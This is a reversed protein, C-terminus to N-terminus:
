VNIVEFFLSFQGWIRGVDRNLSFSLFCLCSESVILTEGSESEFEDSCGHANINQLHGCSM